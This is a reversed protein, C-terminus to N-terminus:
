IALPLKLVFTTNQNDEFYLDGKHDMAIGKSTSLSLGTGQNVEKTSFFPQFLRMHLEPPIQPGGNSIKILIYDPYTVFEYNLWRSELPISMMADDANKTLNFLIQTIQFPHCFIKVDPIASSTFKIEHAKLLEHTYSLTRDIVEKLPVIEKPQPEMELSFYKLGEIVGKIKMIAEKSQRFKEEISPTTSLGKAMERQIQQTSGLIIMLSNNVEHALGGAMASLASIKETHILKATQEVLSSQSKKLEKFSFELDLLANFRQMLGARYDKYQRLQYIFFITFMFTLYHAHPNIGSWYQCFSIIIIPLLILVQFPYFITKDYGLTVISSAVYGTLITVLIGYHWGAGKLELVGLAFIVGWSVSNLWISFRMLNIEHDLSGKIDLIKRSVIFRFINALVALGCAARMAFYQDELGFRYISIFIAVVSFAVTAQTSKFAVEKWLLTRIQNQRDNM